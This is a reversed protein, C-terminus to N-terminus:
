KVVFNVMRGPVAVVKVVTKGDLNKLVVEDARAAAELAAADSNAPVVIKSRVKGNVSIPIEVTDEVLLAPDYAPWPECSLTNSHGLANWLEEAIHPAFPSLLQVFKELVSKSRTEQGSMFNTFEMMRSIATNFSLRDIDDTVAKITKHLIRLQDEPPASDVVGPLLVVEEARDDIMMRWVRGLFRYVGEVGSMQWPKTQELPGMFMEYLRLSDAGYQQVIDDPNIVNGRSKSMKEAKGNEDPEGLIMGQNVLKQFPEPTSVHGRDFLVKHWFRSYLLHLVAHEAGGIYLDVPLWYKERAPDIFNESNKNDCFRLYYWCSGAWQPMSNTERKLKVGDTDTKFLWEPTAKALMPEPTGTPKFDEMHPHLVPLSEATDARMLGTPNGHADLEHWIPFPEGWYRQRSFLWDRLRYNVAEKGLGDSTLDQIMQSKFDATTLGDYKGSNIAVGTETFAINEPDATHGSGPAPAVVQRIEIGFTRAFEYDREDHAPVAM